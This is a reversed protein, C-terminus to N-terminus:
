IARKVWSTKSLPCKKAKTKYFSNSWATKHKERHELNPTVLGIKTKDEVYDRHVVTPRFITVHKNDEDPTSPDNSPVRVIPCKAPRLHNVGGCGHCALTKTASGSHVHKTM